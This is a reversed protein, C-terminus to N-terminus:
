FKWEAPYDLMSLTKFGSVIKELGPKLAAYEPESTQSLIIYTLNRRPLVSLIWVNLTNEKSPPLVVAWWVGQLAHHAPQTTEQLISARARPTEYKALIQAMMTIAKDEARVSDQWKLVGIQSVANPAQEGSHTMQAFWTVQDLLPQAEDVYNLTTDGPLVQILWSSDPRKVSFYYPFNFYLSDLEGIRDGDALRKLEGDPNPVNRNMENILVLVAFLAFVLFLISSKDFPRKKREKM